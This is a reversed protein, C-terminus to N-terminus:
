SGVAPTLITDGTDRVSVSELVNSESEPVLFLLSKLSVMDQLDASMPTTVEQLLTEKTEGVRLSVVTLTDLFAM